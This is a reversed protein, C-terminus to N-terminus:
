SKGKGDAAYFPVMEGKSNKVMKLASPSNGGMAMPTRDMAKTMSPVPMMQNQMMNQQPQTASMKGGAQAKKRPKTMGGYMMPKRKAAGGYMMGKRPGNNYTKM